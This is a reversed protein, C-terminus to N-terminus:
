VYGQLERLEHRIEEETPNDLTSGVIEFLLARWRDRMRHVHSKLTGAPIGLRTSIAEYHDAPDPGFGLFPRLADFLEGKGAAHFEVQLADMAQGLMSLAWERQFLRDPPLDDAEAASYREEASIADFSSLLTAGRKKANAKDRENSAHNRLCALLFHRLRGKSPDTAALINNKILHEFFGQTLDEADQPKYGSRRLYTYLPYWYTNCIAALGQSAKAEDTGLAQRIVSWQTTQFHPITIRTDPRV